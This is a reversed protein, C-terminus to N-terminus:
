QPSSGCHMGASRLRQNMGGPDRILDPIVFWVVLDPAAPGAAGVDGRGAVLGRRGAASDAARCVALRGGAGGGDHGLCFRGTNPFEHFFNEM